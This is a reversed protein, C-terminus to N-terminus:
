QVSNEAQEDPFTYCTFHKSVVPAIELRFDGDNVVGHVERETEEGDGDDWSAECLALARVRLTWYREKGPDTCQFEAIMGPPAPLLQLIKYTRM